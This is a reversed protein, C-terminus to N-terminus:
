KGDDIYDIRCSECYTDEEVEKQKVSFVDANIIKYAEETLEISGLSHQFPCSDCDLDCDDKDVSVCAFFKEAEILWETKTM